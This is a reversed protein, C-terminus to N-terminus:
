CGHAVFQQSAEGIELIEVGLGEVSALDSILGVVAMKQCLYIQQISGWQLNIL